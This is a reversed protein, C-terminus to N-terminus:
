RGSYNGITFGCAVTNGCNNKINYAPINNPFYWYREYYKAPNFNWDYYYQFYFGGTVSQEDDDTIEIIFSESDEFLYNGNIDLDSINRININSM